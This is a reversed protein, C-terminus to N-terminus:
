SAASALAELHLPTRASAAPPSSYRTALSNLLAVSSLGPTHVSRALQLM